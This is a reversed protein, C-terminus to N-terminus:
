RNLAKQAAEDIMRMMEALIARWFEKVEEETARVLFPMTWLGACMLLVKQVEFDPVLGDVVLEYHKARYMIVRERIEPEELMGLMQLLAPPEQVRMWATLYAKLMKGPEDPAEACLAEAEAEIQEFVRDVIALLCQNKTKFYHTFCGKSVGAEAAIADMTTRYFGIDNVVKVTADLLLERTDRRVM